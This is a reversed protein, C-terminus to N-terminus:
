EIPSRMRSWNGVRNPAVSVDVRDEPYLLRERGSSRRLYEFLRIDEDEVNWISQSPVLGGHEILNCQWDEFFKPSPLHFNTPQTSFIGSLGDSDFMPRLAKPLQLLKRLILRRVSPLRVFSDNALEVLALIRSPNYVLDHWGSFRRSLRVPCVDAGNLFEGGCSERFLFDGLLWFSKRRNVSFGNQELRKMVSSAHRSEVVIDDGYVRYRSLNPDGGDQRIACETIAAFVICEVPFCLASGMPAYKKLQMESGDPLLVSKSRTAVMFPFLASDRFWKRVLSWSVSDSASSLDITAFEGSLSGEWALARNPEQDEPRFRKRLPHHPRRRLDDVFSRLVGQQYWMLTAPEMSISRYSLFTKPVMQLKARRVFECPPRPGSDRSEMRLSLYHLLPDLGLSRYKSALDSTSDAVSGSGHRCEMGQYLTPLLSRPYWSKVLSSEEDTFGDSQLTAERVLYDDIAKAEVDRLGPHNLRSAFALAQHCDSFAQIREEEALFPDFWSRMRGQLPAIIAGCWPFDKKLTQKFSEWTESKSASEILLQDALKFLSFVQGVDVQSLNTVWRLDVPSASGRPFALVDTWCLFLLLYGPVIIGPNLRQGGCQFQCHRLYDEVREWLQFSHNLSTSM